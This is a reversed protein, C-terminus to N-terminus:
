GQLVHRTIGVIGNPLGEPPTGGTTIRPADPIFGSGTTAETAKLYEIEVKASGILVQGLESVAKSKDIALKVADPSTAERLEKLQAFLAARLTTINETSM